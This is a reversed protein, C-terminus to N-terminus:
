RAEPPPQRGHWPPPPPPTVPEPPSDAVPEPSVAPTPPLQLRVMHLANGRFWLGGSEDCFVDRFTNRPEGWRWRGLEVIKPRAAATPGHTVDLLALGDDDLLWIRGDPSQLIRRPSAEVQRNIWLGDTLRCGIMNGLSWLRGARDHLQVDPGFPARPPPLGPDRRRPLETFWESWLGGDNDAFVDYRFLESGPKAEVLKESFCWDDAYHVSWLVSPQQTLLVLRRGGDYTLLPNSISDQTADMGRKGVAHWVNHWRDGDFYALRKLRGRRRPAPFDEAFWLNGAGDGALRTGGGNVGGHPEFEGYALKALAPAHEQVLGWLTAASHWEHGDFFLSREPGRALIAQGRLPVLCLADSFWDGPLERPHPVEVPEPGDLRLMAGKSNVAWATTARPTTEVRALQDYERLPLEPAAPPAKPNYVYSPSGPFYIRGEEDEFEPVRLHLADPAVLEMTLKATTRRGKRIWLRGSSDEFAGTLDNVHEVGLSQWQEWPVPELSWVGQSSVSIMCRDCERGTRTDLCKEVILRVSGDPRATVLGAQGFKYRGGHLGLGAHDGQIASALSDIVDRLRLRVEPHDAEELAASLIAIASPGCSVLEASAQERVEYAADTLRDVIPALRQADIDSSLRTWIREGGCLTVIAGDRLPIVARTVHKPNGCVTPDLLRWRSGDYRLVYKLTTRGFREQEGEHDGRPVLGHSTVVRDPLYGWHSVLTIEGNTHEHFSLGNFWNNVADTRADAPFLGFFSWTGDTQLTHVGFGEAGDAASGGVFHLSGERDECAVPMWRGPHDLRRRGDATYQHKRSAVSIYMADVAPEGGEPIPQGDARYYTWATGDYCCLLWPQEHPRVWIRGRSDVILVDAGAIFRSQGAHAREVSPRLGAMGGIDRGIFWTRGSWDRTVRLVSSPLVSWQRGEALVDALERGAAMAVDRVIPDGYTGPARPAIEGDSTAATRIPQSQAAAEIAFCAASVILAAFARSTSHAFV